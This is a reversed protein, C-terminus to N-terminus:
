TALTFSSIVQQQLSTKLPYVEAVNGSPADTGKKPASKPKVALKPEGSQDDVVVDFHGKSISNKISEPAHSLSAELGKESVSKKVMDRANEQARPETELTLKVEAFEANRNLERELDEPGKVKERLREYEEPSRLRKRIKERENSPINDLYSDSM